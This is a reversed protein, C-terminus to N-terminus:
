QKKKKQQTRKGREGGGALTFNVLIALYLFASFILEVYGTLISQNIYSIRNSLDFFDALFRPHFRAHLFYTNKYTMYSVHPFTVNFNEWGSHFTLEFNLFM